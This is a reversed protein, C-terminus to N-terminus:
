QVENREMTGEFTLGGIRVLVALDPLGARVTVQVVGELSQGMVLYWTYYLLLPVVLQLVCSTVDVDVM